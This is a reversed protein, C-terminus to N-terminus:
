KNVEFYDEIFKVLLAIQFKPKVKPESNEAYWISYELRREFSNM